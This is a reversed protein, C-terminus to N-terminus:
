RALEGPGPDSPDRQQEDGGELGDPDHDQQAPHDVAAIRGPGHHGAGAHQDDGEHREVEEGLVEPLQPGPAPEVVVRRQRHGGAATTSPAAAAYAENVTGPVTTM